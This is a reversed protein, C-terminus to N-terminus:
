FFSVKLPGEAASRQLWRFSVICQHLPTIKTYRTTPHQRALAPRLGGEGVGSWL